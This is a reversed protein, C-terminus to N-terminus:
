AVVEGITAVKEDMQFKVGDDEGMRWWWGSPTDYFGTAGAPAKWVTGAFEDLEAEPVNPYNGRQASRYNREAEDPTSGQGWGIGTIAWYDNTKLEPRM